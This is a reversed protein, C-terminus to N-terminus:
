DTAKTLSYGQGKLIKLTRRATRMMDSKVDQFSTKDDGSDADGSKNQIRFMARALAMVDEHSFESKTETEDTM